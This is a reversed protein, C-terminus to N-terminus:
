VQNPSLEFRTFVKVEMNLSEDTQSWTISPCKTAAQVDAPVALTPISSDSSIVGARINRTDGESSCHKPSDSTLKPRKTEERPEFSFNEDLYDTMGQATLEKLKDINVVELELGNPADFDPETNSSAEISDLTRRDWVAHGNTVLDEALNLGGGRLQVVMVGSEDRSLLNCELVETEDQETRTMEFLRDGAESTWAGPPSPLVQGLRCKSAQVPLRTLFEEPCEAMLDSASVTTVDGADIFHITYKNQIVLEGRRESVNVADVKELRGRRALGNDSLIVYDGVKPNHFKSNKETKFWRSMEDELKKLADANSVHTLYFNEPGYCETMYVLETVEDSLIAKRLRREGAEDDVLELSMDSDVTGEFIAQTEINAREAMATITELPRTDRMGHGGVLLSSVTEFKLVYRGILPQLEMVQCRDLILIDRLHLIKKGRCVVDRDRDRRMGCRGMLLMAAQTGWATDGDGPVVGGIVVKVACPPFKDYSFDPLLETIDSLEVEAKIGYDVLFVELRVLSEKEDKVEYIMELLKARKYVGDDTAAAVLMNLELTELPEKTEKNNYHRAMRLMLKTLESESDKMKVWYVVPSEVGLITFKVIDPVSIDPTDLNKHLSHRDQCKGTRIGSCLGTTVLEMCLPSGASLSHKTKTTQLSSHFHTLQEPIPADCRKLLPLITSFCASDKMSLLLHVSGVQSHEGSFMNRFCSRVFTFRQAFITKSSTPVDWHILVIGRDSGSFPFCQLSEDTVILPFSPNQSWSEVLINMDSIDVDSNVNLSKIGNEAFLQYIRRSNKKHSCCIVVRKSARDTKGVIELLKKEKEGDIDKMKSFFSTQIGIKGYVVGELMNVFAVTPSFCPRLPKIYAESFDEVAHSWKEAVVVLQDPVSHKVTSKKWTSIIEKTQTKFRELLSDGDEIVLHCCRELGVIKDEQLLKLLRPPTTVLVDAGNIFETIHPEPAGSSSLLSRVELRAGTSVEELITHVREATEM